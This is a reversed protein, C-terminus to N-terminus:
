AYQISPYQILSLHLYKQVNSRALVRALSVRGVWSWYFQLIASPLLLHIITCFTIFLFFCASSISLEHYAAAFFNYMCVKVSDLPYMVCHEMIGAIAGATMHTSISSSPLTEYEDYDPDGPKRVM